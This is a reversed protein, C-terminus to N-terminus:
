VHGPTLIFAGPVLAHERDNGRKTALVRASTLFKGNEECRAQPQVLCFSEMADGKKRAMKFARVPRFDGNAAKSAPKRMKGATTAQPVQLPIWAAALSGRGM